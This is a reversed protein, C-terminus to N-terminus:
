KSTPTICLMGDWRRKLVSRNLYVCSVSSGVIYRFLPRRNRAVTVPMLKTLASKMTYVSGGIGVDAIGENAFGESTHRGGGKGAEKERWNREM